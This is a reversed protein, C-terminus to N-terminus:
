RHLHRDLWSRLAEQDPSNVFEFGVSNKSKRVLTSPLHFRAAHPADFSIQSIKDAQLAVMQAEAPETLSIRIGGASINRSVAQLTFAGAVVKVPVVMPIRAHRRMQNLLLQYTNQIAEIASEESLDPMLVSIEFGALDLVDAEFGVGYILSHQYKDMSRITQLVPKAGANVRVVFANIPKDKLSRLGEYPVVQVAVGFMKWASQLDSLASTEIGIAALVATRHALTSRNPM